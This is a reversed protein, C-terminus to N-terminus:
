LSFLFFHKNGKGTSRSKLGISQAYVHLKKRAFKSLTVPFSLQERTADRRLQDLQDRYIKLEIKQQKQIEKQDEQYKTLKKKVETVTKAELINIPDLQDM